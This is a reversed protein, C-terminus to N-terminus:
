MGAVLYTFATLDLGTIVSFIAFRRAVWRAM